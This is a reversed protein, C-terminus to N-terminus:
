LRQARIRADARIETAPTQLPARRHRFMRIEDVLGIEIAAAALGAGGISVDQDTSELAAAVEEAALSAYRNSTSGFSSRALSRGASGVM